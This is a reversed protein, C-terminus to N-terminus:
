STFLGMHFPKGHYPQMGLLSAMVEDITMVSVVERKADNSRTLVM